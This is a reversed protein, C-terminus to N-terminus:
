GENDFLYKMRLYDAQEKTIRNGWQHANITGYLEGWLCDLHSVQEREGQVYNDITLQLSEPLDAELYEKGSPKGTADEDMDTKLLLLEEPSIGLVDSLRRCIEASCQLLTIRGSCIDSIIDWPLGSEKSLSYRSFGKERLLQNITMYEGATQKSSRNESNQYTEM